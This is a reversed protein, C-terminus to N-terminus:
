NEEEVVIWKGHMRMVREIVDRVCGRGGAIPSIYQAIRKIEHAADAPCTPLAVLRMVDYDPLDDGMYLVNGPNINFENCYEEFASVKDRIGKYIQEIGLGKLRLIVGESNGGTIICINYDSEIALRMAYGDRANMTRLLEGSETILLESNTLVGDVDFIFTTINGFQELYNM